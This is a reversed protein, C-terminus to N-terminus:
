ALWGSTKDLYNNGDDDAVSLSQLEEAAKLIVDSIGDDDARGEKM